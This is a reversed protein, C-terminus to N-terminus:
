SRRDPQLKRGAVGVGPSSGQLPEIDQKFATMPGNVIAASFTVVGTSRKVSIPTALAAGSDNYNGLVLDSGVSSSSPRATASGNGVCTTPLLAL